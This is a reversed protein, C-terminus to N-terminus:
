CSRRRWFAWLEVVNFGKETYFVQFYFTLFSVQLSKGVGGKSSAVSDLLLLTAIFSSMLELRKWLHVSVPRLSPEKEKRTEEEFDSSLRNFFFNSPDAKSKMQLQGM